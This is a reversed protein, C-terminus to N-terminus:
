KSNLNKYKKLQDDLFFVSADSVYEIKRVAYFIRIQSVIGPSSSLPPFAAPLTPSTFSANYCFHKILLL